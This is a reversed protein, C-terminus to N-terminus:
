LGLIPDLNKHHAPDPNAIELASGGCKRLWHGDTERIPAYVPWGKTTHNPGASFLIRMCHSTIEGLRIQQRATQM